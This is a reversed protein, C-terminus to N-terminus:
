PLFKNKFNTGIFFITCHNILKRIINKGANAGNSPIPFIRRQAHNWLKISEYRCDYISLIELKLSGGKHILNIREFKIYYSNNKNMTLHLYLPITAGIIFNLLCYFLIMLPKSIKIAKSCPDMLQQAVWWCAVARVTTLHVHADLINFWFNWGPQYLHGWKM